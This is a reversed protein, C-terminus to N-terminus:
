RANFDILFGTPHLRYRLKTGTLVGPNKAPFVAHGATDGTETWTTELHSTETAVYNISNRTM